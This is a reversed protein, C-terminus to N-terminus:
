KLIQLIDSIKLDNILDFDEKNLSYNFGTKQITWDLIDMSNRYRDNASLVLFKLLLEKKEDITFYDFKRKYKNVTETGTSEDFLSNLSIERVEQSTCKRFNWSTYWRESGYLKIKIDTWTTSGYSSKQDVFNVDKVKYKKGRILTKLSDHIPVVYDGSKLTKDIKMQEKLDLETRYEPSFWQISPFDSGSEPRFSSLPFTQISNDTLYIRVTPVFHASSKSNQNNLYAIKYAVNKVLKKTPKICIANM